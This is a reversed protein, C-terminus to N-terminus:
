RFFTPDTIFDEDHHGLEIEMAKNVGSEVSDISPLYPKIDLVPTGEFADVGTLYLTGHEIKLLKVLSLGIPNPRKPSRTAFLGFEHGSDPPSVTPNWGKVQDFHYLVLIYEFEALTQLAGRYPEYIEITAETEPMLMGQRPAGTDPTFRSHFVGIPKYHVTGNSMPAVATGFPGDIKAPSEAPSCGSALLTALSLLTLIRSSIRM